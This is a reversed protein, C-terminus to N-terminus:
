QDNKLKEATKNYEKWEGTDNWSKESIPYVGVKGDNDKVLEILQTMHFFTNDPILNIASKNLIYMGTSILLNSEPKEKLELLSGGNDIECVGYPIKFNMMSSVLTIEFGSKIHFDVIESYDVHILIDCNTIIVYDTIKNEVLKISGATGLPKIEKFFDLSYSKELDDFYSKIINSKHNITMNFDFIGYVLFKDIIHEVISKNGIPILPKPLITTFPILRTGFGGAMIIVPCSIQSKPIFSKTDNFLNNWFLINVVQHKDNLVPISEINKSLMKNKADKKLYNDYIFEPQKNCVNIVDEELDKGSLIWRRVDGDSLSGILRKQTDTVFLIKNTNLDIKKMCEIVSEKSGVLINDLNNSDMNKSKKM